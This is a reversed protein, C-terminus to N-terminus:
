KEKAPVTILWQWHKENSKPPLSGGLRKAKSARAEDRIASIIWPKKAEDARRLVLRIKQWAKIKDRRSDLEGGSLQWAYPWPLKM